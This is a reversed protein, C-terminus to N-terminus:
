VLHKSYWISHNRWNISLSVIVFVCCLLSSSSEWSALSVYILMEASYHPCNMTRFLYSDPPRLKAKAGFKTRNNFLERHSLHQIGNALLFLGVSFPEAPLSFPVVTYFVFGFIYALVHMSSSGSPPFLVTDELFRRVLHLLFMQSTTTTMRTSFANALIAYAYFHAFWRKPISLCSAHELLKGHLTLTKIYPIPLASVLAFVTSSVWFINVLYEFHAMSYHLKSRYPFVFLIEM